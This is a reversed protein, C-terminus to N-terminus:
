VTNIKESVRGQRNETTQGVVIDIPQDFVTSLPRSKRQVAIRHTKEWISMPDVYFASEIKDKRQAFVAFTLDYQGDGLMLDHVTLTVTSKGCPMVGLDIFDPEHSLWSTAIVGDTRTFKVWFVPNDVPCDADVELCFTVKDHQFFGHNEKGKADYIDISAIHLPGSGAKSGSNTMQITDSTIALMDIDYISSVNEAEGNMYIEGDKMYICRSCLRRVLETSHTVFFVTTGSACIETIRKFCKAVFVADGAALAEDIIFIDPEVSIAVSFTLRAKMGSSYTKFPQDIVSSLESFEIISDIKKDIEERSMGLCLGGLYINERGSYEPHFGTGLELIASIKGNVEFSGSTCDLTGALVKLLTSKGAGNRGIVGVVEGKKVSFNINKLANFVNHRKQNTLIELLLHYHKDYLKFDKCLDTVKIAIDNSM